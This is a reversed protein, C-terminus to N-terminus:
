ERATWPRIQNLALRQYRHRVELNTWDSATGFRLLRDTLEFDVGSSELAEITAALPAPDLQEILDRMTAEAADVDRAGHVTLNARDSLHQWGLVQDDAVVAMHGGIIKGGDAIRLQELWDFARDPTAQFMVTGGNTCLVEGRGSTAALSEAVSQGWETPMPRGGRIWPEATAESWVTAWLVVGRWDSIMDYVSGGGDTLTVKDPLEKALLDLFAAHLSPEGKLDVVLSLKGAPLPSVNTFNPSFLPDLKAAITSVSRLAKRLSPEDSGKVVVFLDGGDRASSRLRKTVRAM